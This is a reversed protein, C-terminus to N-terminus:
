QHRTKAHRDGGEAALDGGAEGGVTDGPETAQDAWERAEQELEWAEAEVRANREACAECVQQWPEIRTRHCARCRHKIDLIDEM